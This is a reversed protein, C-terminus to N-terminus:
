TANFTGTAAQGGNVTYLTVTQTGTSANARVNYGDSVLVPAVTNAAVLTVWSNATGTYQNFEIVVNATSPYVYLGAPIFQSTLMATSNGSGVNSVVVPEFYAGATNTSANALVIKNLALSM